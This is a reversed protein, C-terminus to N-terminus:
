VASTGAPRCDTWKCSVGECVSTKKYIIELPKHPKYWVLLLPLATWCCLLLPDNHRCLSAWSPVARPCCRCLHWLHWLNMASPPSLSLSLSLPQNLPPPKCHPQVPNSRSILLHILQKTESPKRNTTELGSTIVTHKLNILRTHRSELENMSYFLDAQLPLFIVHNNNPRISAEKFFHSYSDM